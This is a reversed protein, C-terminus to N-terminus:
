TAFIIDKIWVVLNLWTNKMSFTIQAKGSEELVRLEKLDLFGLAQSLQM